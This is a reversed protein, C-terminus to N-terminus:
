LFIQLYPYKMNKSVKHDENNSINLKEPLEM